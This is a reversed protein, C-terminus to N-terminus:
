SCDDFITGVWLYRRCGGGGLGVICMCGGVDGGFGGSSGGGGGLGHVGDCVSDYRRHGESM